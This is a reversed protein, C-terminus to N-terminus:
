TMGLPLGPRQPKHMDLYTGFFGWPHGIVATTSGSIFDYTTESVYLDAADLLSPVSVRDGPRVLWAPLESGAVTTATRTFTVTGSWQASQREAWVRAAMAAAQADGLPTEAYDTVALVNADFSQPDYPYWVDCLTGAPRTDGSEKLYFLRVFDPALEADRVLEATSEGARDGYDWHRNRRGDVFPPRLAARFGDKGDDTLYFGYEVYNGALEVLERMADAMSTPPDPRVMVHELEPTLPACDVVDALEGAVDGLATGLNVDYDPAAGDRRCYVRVNRVKLWPEATSDPTGVYALVFQAARNPASFVVTASRWSTRSTSELMELTAAEAWPDSRSYVRFRWGTPLNCKYSFKLAVIQQGLQLGGNLWYSFRASANTSFTRDNQGAIFLYAENEVTFKGSDQYAVLEGESSNYVRSTRFWQQADADICAYGYVQCRAAWSMLGGAACAVSEEGRIRQRMPDSVLRGGWVPVGGLRLRVKAGPVLVNRYREAADGALTWDLSGDGGPMAKTMVELAADAALDMWGGADTGVLLSPAAYLDLAESAGLEQGPLFAVNEKGLRATTVAEALAALPALSKKGTTLAPAESLSAGADLPAAPVFQVGGAFLLRARSADGGSNMTRAFYVGSFLSLVAGASADAHAVGARYGYRVSVAKLTATANSHSANLETAM